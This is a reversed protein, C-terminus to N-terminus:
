FHRELTRTLNDVREGFAVNGTDLKTQILNDIYRKFQLNFLNRNTQHATLIEPPNEKIAKFVFNVIKEILQDQDRKDIAPFFTHIFKTIINNPTNIGTYIDKREIVFNRIVNKLYEDSMPFVFQQLNDKSISDSWNNFNGFSNNPCPDGKKDLEITNNLQITLPDDDNFGAKRVNESKNFCVKHYLDHPTRLDINQEVNPDYISFLGGFNNRQWFNYKKYDFFRPMVRKYVAFLRDNGNRSNWKGNSTIELCNENGGANNPEGTNWNDFAWKTGDSWEWSSGSEKSGGIWLHEFGEILGTIIENENTNEISALEYGLILAYVRHEEWTMETEEIYYEYPLHEPRDQNKIAEKLADIYQNYTLGESNINFRAERRLRRYVAPRTRSPIWRRTTRTQWAWIPRSRCTQQMQRGLLLSIQRSWWPIQRARCIRERRIIRWIRNRDVRYFGDGRIDNWRGDPGMEIFNERNGSNNPERRGWNQFKFQTGDSWYRTFINNNRTSRIGGIWTSQGRGRTHSKILNFVYDNEEQSHISTLFGGWNEALQEHEAFDLSQDNFIYEYEVTPEWKTNDSVIMCNKNKSCMDLAEEINNPGEGEIDMKVLPPAGEEINEYRDLNRYVNNHKFWKKCNKSDIGVNVKTWDEKNDQLRNFLLNFNNDSDQEKNPNVDIFYYNDRQDACRFGTVNDQIRYKGSSDRRYHVNRYTANNTEPLIINDGLQTFNEYIKCNIFM